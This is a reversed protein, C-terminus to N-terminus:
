VAPTAGTRRGRVDIRCDEGYMVLGLKRAVARSAHNSWDTSYLPLRGEDRIAAAWTRVLEGALGRGRYAPATEVGAEAGAATSRASHCVAVVEDGENRVVALPHEVPQVERVWALEAVTSADRPDLLIAARSSAKSTGDPFVFAPGREVRLERGGDGLLGQLAEIRPPRQELDDIDAPMASLAAHVERRRHEPISASLLWSNGESTRVLHVLPPAGEFNRCRVICGEADREYLLDLHVDALAPPDM